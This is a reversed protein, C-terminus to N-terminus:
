KLGLARHVRYYNSFTFRQIKRNNCESRGSRVHEGLPAFDRHLFIAGMVRPDIGPPPPCIARIDNVTVFPQTELLKRAADRARALYDPKTREHLALWDELDIQEAM